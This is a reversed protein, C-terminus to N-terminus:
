CRGRGWKAPGSWGHSEHFLINELVYGHSHCELYLSYRCWIYYLTQHSLCNNSSFWVLNMWRYAFLFPIFYVFFGHEFRNSNSISLCLSRSLLWCFVLGAEEIDWLWLFVFLPFFFWAWLLATSSSIIFLFM